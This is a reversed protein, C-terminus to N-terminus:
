ATPAPTPEAAAVPAATASPTLILDAREASAEIPLANREDVNEVWAEAADRTRGFRM